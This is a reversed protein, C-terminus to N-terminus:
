LRMGRVFPERFSILGFPRLVYATLEVLEPFPTRDASPVFLARLDFHEVVAPFQKFAALGTGDIGAHAGIM